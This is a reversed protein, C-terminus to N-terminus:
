RDAEGVRIGVLPVTKLTRKRKSKKPSSNDTATNTKKKKKLPTQPEDIREDEQEESEELDEDDIFDVDSQTPEDEDSSANLNAVDDYKTPDLREGIERWVEYKRPNNLRMQLAYFFLPHKETLRRLKRCFVFYPKDHCDGFRMGLYRKGFPVRFNLYYYAKESEQVHEWLGGHYKDFAAAFPTGHAFNLNRCFVLYSLELKHMTEGRYKGFPMNMGGADSDYYWGFDDDDGEVIPDLLLAYSAAM